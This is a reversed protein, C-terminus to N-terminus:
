RWPFDAPLTHQKVQERVTSCIDRLIRKVAGSEGGMIRCVLGCENPLRSVAMATHAKNDIHSDILPYIKEITTTPTLIIATAFIEYNDMVGVERIPQRAPEIVMKECFLERGDARSARTLLSLIDYDFMEGHYRRGCHYSEAYFLTASPDIIIECDSAYRTHRCPIIPEPLYELYAGADLTIRQQMSSYNNRMSALKTAAGTAIHAYADRSVSILQRYRDGEVNPGGSSLIYVCPLEPWARDFYLEQQVILPARREWHRMISRGEADLEFGLRLYGCKGATGVAMRPPTAYALMEPHTTM